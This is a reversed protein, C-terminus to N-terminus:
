EGPGTKARVDGFTLHQATGGMVLAATGLAIALAVTGLLRTPKMKWWMILGTLSWIVMTVGLLDAFLAWFWAAGVQLPFHHTKHLSALLQTVGINPFADTRRGSVAGTRLDYVMNWRQKDADLLRFRLEPAIKPHARLEDLAHKHRAGLLGRVQHEVVKASFEALAVTRGPFSTKADAPEAKRTVLVGTAEAVDLLLVHQAGQAPASLVTFGTLESRSDPDLEYHQRSAGAEVPENLGQVVRTAIDEARWPELETLAHFDAQSIPESQVDQGLNPHNFLMGSIGFLLLWPLLLLGAYLHVRRVLKILKGARVSQALRARLSM